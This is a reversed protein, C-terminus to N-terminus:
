LTEKMTWRVTGIVWRGPMPIGPIDSYSRDLVNTASVLLEVPGTPRSVTLDMMGYSPRATHHHYGANVTAAVGFLLETSVSANVQHKPHTFSYKTRFASRIDLESEIFTYNFSVFRITSHAPSWSSQLEVGRVEANSFNEAHYLDTASHKVYDILDTQKRYFAAAQISADDAPRLHLGTEISLGREPRLLPNGVNAPDNYYLDTYSPARFSTGASVYVKGQEWLLYGASVTPHVVPAYDSHIDGRIGADISWREAPVWRTIVSGAALTRQHDGLKTSTIRDATVEVTGSTTLTSSWARMATLEGTLVNTTHRNNSLAPNTINFIFHDFHQRFGVRADVSWVGATTNTGVTALITETQEHSPVNSGPSYFDFAGFDKHVYGASATLTGWPVDTVAMSTANWQESETDYRYGDSSKFSASSLTRVAGSQSGFVVNGERYGNEGGSLDLSLLPGRPDSVINITGGFADPGYLMSNPGRIIEIQTVAALPVPIDFNHHATQPDNIRMGNFLVLQQSFTSGRIGLDTQVGLPGRRRLETATYQRIADELSRPASARLQEAPLVSASRNLDFATLSLRSSRVIVPEVTYSISDDGYTAAMAPTLLSILTFLHLIKRTM